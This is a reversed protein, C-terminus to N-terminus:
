AVGELSEGVRDGAQEGAPAAGAGSGAPPNATLRFRRPKERALEAQGLGTLRDLANAVAGSSRGLVKGIEHPGFDKGPHARLHAAVLERLAGPKVAPTKRGSAAAKLARRAQTAQESIETFGALAARLDGAALAAAAAQAAATVQTAHGTIEAIVAPDPASGTGEGPPSGAAQGAGDDPTGAGATDGQAGARAPPDAQGGDDTQSPGAPGDQGRELASPGQAALEDEDDGAGDGDSAAPQEDQADPEGGTVTGATTEGAESSRATEARPTGDTGGSDPSSIAATTQPPPTPATAAPRWTDPIGPRAGKTREATGAAELSALAKGAAARSIGAAAAIGATTAGDPSAELATVVAAAPGDAAPGAAPAGPPTPATHAASRAAVRAPGVNKKRAM